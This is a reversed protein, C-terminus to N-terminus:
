HSQIIEKLEGPSYEIEINKGSITKLMVKYCFLQHYAAANKIKATKGYLKDGLIPLNVAAMHVRIQHRCGKTIEAEMLSLTDCAKILRLHTHASQPKGRYRLTKAKDPIIAVMRSKDSCHHAIPFHIDQKMWNPKNGAVAYYYKHIASEKYYAFAENTEAFLIIGGTENDLRNLLGGESKNFGNVEAINPYKELVSSCIDPLKGPVSAIGQPKIVALLGDSRFIENIEM